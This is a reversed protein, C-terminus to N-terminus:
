PLLINVKFRPPLASFLSILVLAFSMEQLVLDYTLFSSMKHIYRNHMGYKLMHQYVRLHLEKKYAFYGSYADTIKALFPGPYQRLPHFTLM